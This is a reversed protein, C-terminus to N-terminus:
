SMPEPDLPKDPEVNDVWEALGLRTCLDTFMRPDLGVLERGPLRVAIFESAGLIALMAKDGESLTATSM